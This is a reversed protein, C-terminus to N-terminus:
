KKLHISKKKFKRSIKIKKLLKERRKKQIINEGVYFMNALKKLETDSIPTKKTFFKELEVALKKLEFNNRDNNSIHRLVFPQLDLHEIPIIKM